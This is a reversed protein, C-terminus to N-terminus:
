MRFFIKLAGSSNTENRCSSCDLCCESCGGVDEEDDEALDFSLEYKKCDNIMAIASSAGGDFYMKDVENEIYEGDRYVPEVSLSCDYDLTIYYEKVYDQEPLINVSSIKVGDDQLLYKTLEIADEYFLVACTIDGFEYSLSYMYSGLDYVDDFKLIKMVDENM